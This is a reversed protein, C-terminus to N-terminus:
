MPSLECARSRCRAGRGAHGHAMHLRATGRLRRARRIAAACTHSTHGQHARVQLASGKNLLKVGSVRPFTFSSVLGNPMRADDSDRINIPTQANGTNCLGGFGTSSSYFDPDLTQARAAAVASLAIIAHSLM